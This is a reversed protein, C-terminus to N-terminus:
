TVNYTTTATPSVPSVQALAGNSWLYTTGGSATLTTSQAQVSKQTAQSIEPSPLPNVKVTKVSTSAQCGNGDTVTVNYTTTATPSVDINHNLQEKAGTSLNNRWCSDIENNGEQVYKQTM